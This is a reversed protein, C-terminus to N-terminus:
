IQLFTFIVVFYTFIFPFYLSFLAMANMTQTHGSYNGWCKQGANYTCGKKRFEQGQNTVEEKETQSRSWVNKNIKEDM